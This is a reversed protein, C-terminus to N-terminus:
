LVVLKRFPTSSARNIVLSGTVASCSSSLLERFNQLWLSDIGKRFAASILYTQHESGSIGPELFCGKLVEWSCVWCISVSTARSFQAWRLLAVLNRYKLAYFMELYRKTKHRDLNSVYKWLGNVGSLTMLRESYLKWKYKEEIRKIDGKSIKESHTMDEKCKEFFNVLLEAAKDGQVFVGRKDAICRYLEGNRVRNMQSSIWRIHGDLKYKEIFGYIKMEAQEEVDKSAKAHDGAVVVLNVLERLRPNKGYFEVLSTINKVRDLRAMLFIIPKSKDKLMCKHESNEVDSFLFEEIEPHLATLRKSQDAYSFYISMDAGPSVINFKPDFVDIEHIVRYLGPLTFATHSEYKGVTDKSGAIEQFKSTIIFDVHNMANLDATFQCSFHYQDEFKKWYIDSNPYKTKELTHAITCDAYTELYPRVEFRAIWKRVIGKETRFPVRIIHTHETGIVKELHQGCITGVADPLLRSVDRFEQSQPPADAQTSRAAPTIEQPLPGSRHEVERSHNILYSNTVSSLPFLDGGWIWM